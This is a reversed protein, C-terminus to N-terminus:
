CSGRSGTGSCLGRRQDLVELMLTLTERDVKSAVIIGARAEILEIPITGQAIASTPPSTRVRQALM